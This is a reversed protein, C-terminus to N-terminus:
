IYSDSITFYEPEESTLKDVVSYTAASFCTAPTFYVDPPDLSITLQSAVDYDVLSEIPTVLSSSIVNLPCLITFEFTGTIAAIISDYEPVNVTYSVIHTM